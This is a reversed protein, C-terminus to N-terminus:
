EWKQALDVGTYFHKLITEWDDGNNAMCLAGSASMGVGHGWLTRGADCPVSVSVLWDRHGNWVDGFDRTRGDSRSFYPTIALEDQYTVVHGATEQAAQTIKPARKEQGYGNYVQDWSYSSITFFEKKYKTAHTYHYFAYTRAATILAKQYEIPSVNSTEALGRLYWEIGIENILWTRDKYDNHRLEFAGRFENDAHKKGRTLRRDFNAVRMVAHDETPEFRLPYVTKELGEGIDYYYYGNAYYALVEEGKQMEAIVTGETDVVTFDSYASTIVVENDTEEDVILFGIRLLPEDIYEVSDEVDVPTNIVSGTGGTVEIPLTIEGGEVDEGNAQLTFHAIHEGNQQPATLAFNIIAKEGPKVTSTSAALQGDTWSPHTFALMDTSAIQVDPVHLSHQTWTDTGTNTFVATLLIPRGAVAKVKNASLVTLEATLTDGSTLTEEAVVADDQEQVTITLEILADEVWATDEIALQFAETYTGEEAPARLQLAVTGVEGPRVVQEQLAAPHDGWIWTGPDFISGRYKPSQTYVSAYTAVDTRWPYDGTNKIHVDVTTLEGPELMINGNDTVSVVDGVYYPAAAQATSIIFFCAFLALSFSFISSFWTRSM